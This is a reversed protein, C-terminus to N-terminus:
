EVLYGDSLPTRTPFPFVRNVAAMQHEMYMGTYMLLCLYIYGYPHHPLHVPLSSLLPMFHRSRLVSVQGKFLDNVAKAQPTQFLSHTMKRKSHQSPPDLASRVLSVLSPDNNGSKDRLHREFDQRFAADYTIRHTNWIQRATLTTPYAHRASDHDHSDRLITSCQFATQYSVYRSYVYLALFLFVGSVFPKSRPGATKWMM